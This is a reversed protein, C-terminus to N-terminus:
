VMVTGTGSMPSKLSTSTMSTSTFGPSLTVFSCDSRVSSDSLAVMSIGEGADPTTCVTLTFTPSLTDFPAGMRTSSAVPEVGADAGAGARTSLASAGADVGAGAAAAATDAGLGTGRSGCSSVPAFGWADGDTRLNARSSPTSRVRTAAVPGFPRMRCASTCANTFPASEPFVGECTELDPPESGNLKGGHGSTSKELNPRTSDLGSERM